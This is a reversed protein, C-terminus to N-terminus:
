KTAEITKGKVVIEVKTPEELVKVNLLQANAEDPGFMSAELEKDNVKVATVDKAEAGKLTVEVLWAGLLDNKLSTYTATVEVPTEAVVLAERVKTHKDMTAKGFGNEYDMPNQFISKMKAAKEAFLKVNVDFEAVTKSLFVNISAEYADVMAQANEDGNVLGKAVALVAKASAENLEDKEKGEEKGLATAVNVFDQDAAFAMAPAMSVVMSAAMAMALKQKSSYKM